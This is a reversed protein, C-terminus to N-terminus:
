SVFIITDFNDIYPYKTYLAIFYLIGRKKFYFGGRGRKYYIICIFPFISLVIRRKLYGGTEDNKIINM